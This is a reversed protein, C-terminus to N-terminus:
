QTRRQAKDSLIRLIPLFDLYKQLATFAKSYGLISQLYKLLLALFTEEMKDVKSVHDMPHCGSTSLLVIMEFLVNIKEDFEPLNIIENVTKCYLNM